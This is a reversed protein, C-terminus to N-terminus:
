HQVSVQRYRLGALEELRSALALNSPNPQLIGSRPLAASPVSAPTAGGGGASPKLNPPPPPPPPQQQHHHSFPLVGPATVSLSPSSPQSATPSEGAVGAAGMIAAAASTEKGLSYMHDLLFRSLSATRRSLAWARPGLTEPLVVGPPVLLGDLLGLASTERVKTIGCM